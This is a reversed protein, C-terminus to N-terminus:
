RRRWPDAFQPRLGEDAKGSDMASVGPVPNDTTGSELSQTTTMTDTPDTQPTTPLGHEPMDTGSNDPGTPYAPVNGGNGDTPMSPIPDDHGGEETPADPMTDGGEQMQWPRRDMKGDHQEIYEMDRNAQTKIRSGSGDSWVTDCVEVDSHEMMADSGNEWMKRQLHDNRSVTHVRRHHRLLKARHAYFHRQKYLAKFEALVLQRQQLRFAAMSGSAAYLWTFVICIGLLSKIM